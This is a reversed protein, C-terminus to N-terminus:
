KKKAVRKMLGWLGSNTWGGRQSKRKRMVRYKRKRKYRYKM